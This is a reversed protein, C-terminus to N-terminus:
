QRSSSTSRIGQILDNGKSQSLVVQLTIQTVEYNELISMLLGSSHRQVIIQQDRQYQLLISTWQLLVQPQIDPVDRRESFCQLNHITIDDLTSVKYHWAPIVSWDVHINSCKLSPFSIAFSFAFSFSSHVFAFSFSVLAFSHEFSFSFSLAFTEFSLFSFSHFSFSFSLSTKYTTIRVM